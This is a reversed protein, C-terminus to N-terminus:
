GPEAPVARAILESARLRESRCYPAGMTFRRCPQPRVDYIGCSRRDAGLAVCYGDAAHAMVRLGGATVQTLDRPVQDDDHDLIVTLRCCVAACRSCSIAPDVAYAYPEDADPDAGHSPLLQFEIPHASM